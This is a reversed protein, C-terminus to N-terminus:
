SQATSSGVVVETGPPVVVVDVDPGVVVEVVVVIGAVVM